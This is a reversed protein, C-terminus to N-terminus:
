TVDAFINGVLDGVLDATAERHPDKPLNYLTLPPDTREQSQLYAISSAENVIFRLRYDFIVLWHIGLIALSFQNLKKSM